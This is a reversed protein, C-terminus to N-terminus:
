ASNTVVPEHILVPSPGTYHFWMGERKATRKKTKAKEEEKEETWQPKDKLLESKKATASVELSM